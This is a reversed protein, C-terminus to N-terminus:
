AIPRLPARRCRKGSAQPSSPRSLIWRSVALRSCPGVANKSSVTSQAHPPGTRERTGVSDRDHRPSPGMPIRHARHLHSNRHCAIWVGFDHLDRERSCEHSSGPHSWRVSDDDGRHDASRRTVRQIWEQPEEIATSRSCRRPLSAVAMQSNLWPPADDDSRAPLSSSRPSSRGPGNM